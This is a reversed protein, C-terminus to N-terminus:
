PRHFDGVSEILNKLKNTILYNLTKMNPTQKISNYNDLIQKTIEEPINDLNIVKNNRQYNRFAQTPMVDQLNGINESWSDIKKQSLPTQKKDANIFTDDDSLVNPVGDSSDGRFIHERLYKVPDDHTVMKRTIPSYQKVNSYRHLQIFDKDSSIIMVPEDKGFEQTEKVLTAIIDDAEVGYEHIVDFPLFESIEERVKTFTEFISGWDKTDKERGEKRGAKYEPYYDKRWSGGDACIIMRGYEERYKVNYMRLSNLIQHRLLGEEQGGGRAFLAGMAIGSYDVLIM